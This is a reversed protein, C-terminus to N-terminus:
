DLLQYNNGKAVREGRSMVYGVGTSEYRLTSVVMKLIVFGRLLM